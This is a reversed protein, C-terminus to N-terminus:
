QGGRVPWVYATVARNTAYVGGDNFNVGWANATDAASMTSSWYVNSQVGTFPSGATWQSTGAANPLAPSKYQDCTLSRLENATPLRWQGATSGDSLGCSGNALTAADTLSSSWNRGGFCNSDILWILGTLNDTVTGDGNNTFRPSPWVVGKRLDGDQGTTACAIASGAADWCGTQGTRPVLAPPGAQVPQCHYASSLLLYVLFSYITTSRHSM